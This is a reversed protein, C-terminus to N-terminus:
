KEAHEDNEGQLKKIKNYIEKYKGKAKEEKEKSLEVHALEFLDLEAPENISSIFEFINKNRLKEHRGLAYKNVTEQYVSLMCLRLSYAWQFLRLIVHDTLADEGFRDAFFMLSCIFMNYIYNGGYNESFGPWVESQIVNEAKGKTRQLLDLYHITYSFFRKGAVLPQMLQHQNPKTGILENYHCQAFNEIYLNAAKAYVSYDYQNQIKIGKFTDIDKQSYYLGSKQKYWMIMPYLYNRFLKAIDEQKHGEWRAVTEIKEKENDDDMERLHYAKLLDHPDLSKGRSNQSDFFQFAEQYDCTVIKVVSCKELIFSKLKERDDSSVGQLKLRFVEYNTKVANFSSSKFKLNRMIYSFENEPDLAYLLILLTTIRQQGDVIELNSQKNETYFIITGLRYEKVNKKLAQCIDNFLTLASKSSWKYPRQYDPLSLRGTLLEKISVISPEYLNNNQSNKNCM